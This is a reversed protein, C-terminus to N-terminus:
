SATAPSTTRPTSPSIASIPVSRAFRSGSASVRSASIRRDGSSPFVPSSSDELFSGDPGLLGDPYRSSANWLIWEELGADHVGRIQERIEPAGYPPAGLTFAQLWPIIRGAGEVPQTRAVAGELARRVVARPHANPNEFGFSGPAYHSPYVMPLAADVLDIFSEWVQGIGVDTRATTTIGFVDATLAVDLDAMGARAHRLFGRIADSRPRGDAGPFRAAALERSPRDPFRVYDWQVEPFGLEVAERALAVHYDWVGADWPNVWRDGRGDIWVGGGSDRVAADPRGRALVPDQFVVIRAVPYIGVAELRRLLGPLDAIRVDRDAGIERALPVRTAHSVYGSADKLDIVFTNVDNASAWALLDTVRRTSGAAWANLYIGRVAEPRPVPGARRQLVADAQPGGGSTLPVLTPLAVAAALSVATSLTLAVALAVALAAAGARAVAEAVAETWAGARAGAWTEAWAETRRRGWAEEM